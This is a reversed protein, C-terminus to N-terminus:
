LVFARKAASFEFQSVVRDPAPNVRVVVDYGDSVPDVLRDEAIM